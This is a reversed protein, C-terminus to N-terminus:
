FKLIDGEKKIYNTMMGVGHAMCSNSVSFLGTKFLYLTQTHM